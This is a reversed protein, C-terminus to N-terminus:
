AVAQLADLLSVALTHPSLCRFTGGRLGTGRAHEIKDGKGSVIATGTGLLVVPAENTGALSTGGIGIATFENVKVVPRGFLTDSLARSGGGTAGVCAIENPPLHYSEVLKGLAGAAAAVPDNAEITVVHVGGNDLIVADTTSGGIEIGVIMTPHRSRDPGDLLYFRAPGCRLHWGRRPPALWKLGGESLTIGELLHCPAFGVRVLAEKPRFPRRSLRQRISHPGACQVLDDTLLM